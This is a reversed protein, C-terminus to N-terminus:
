TLPSPLRVLPKNTFTILLPQIGSRNQLNFWCFKNVSWEHLLLLFSWTIRLNPSHYLDFNGNLSISFMQPYFMTASSLYWFRQKLIPLKLCRSSIWLSMQQQMYWDLEPAHHLSAIYTFKPTKLMFTKWLRLFSGRLCKPTGSLHGPLKRKFLCCNQGTGYLLWELM